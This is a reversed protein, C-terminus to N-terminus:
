STCGGGSDTVFTKFGFLLYLIYWPHDILPSIKDLQTFIDTETLKQRASDLMNVCRSLIDEKYTMLPMNHKECTALCIILCFAPSQM